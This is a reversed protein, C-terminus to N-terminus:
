LFLGHSCELSKEMKVYEYQKECCILMCYACMCMVLVPNM